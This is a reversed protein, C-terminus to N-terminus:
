FILPLVAEASSLAEEQRILDREAEGYAEVEGNASEKTKKKKKKKGHLFSFCKFSCISITSDVITNLTILDFKGRLNNFSVRVDNVKAAAESM